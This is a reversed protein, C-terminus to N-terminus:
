NSALGDKKTVSRGGMTDVSVDEMMSDMAYDFIAAAAVGVALSTIISAGVAYAGAAAAGAILTLM